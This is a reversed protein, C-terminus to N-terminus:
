GISRENASITRVHASVIDLDDTILINFKIVLGDFGM